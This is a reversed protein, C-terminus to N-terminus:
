CYEGITPFIEEVNVNLIDAVVYRSLAPVLGPNNMWRELTKETVGCEKMVKERFADGDNDARNLLEKLRNMEYTKM